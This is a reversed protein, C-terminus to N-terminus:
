NARLVHTHKAKETDYGAHKERGGIPFGDKSLLPKSEGGCLNSLQCCEFSAWRLLGLLDIGAEPDAISGECPPLPLRLTANALSAFPLNLPPITGKVGSTVIQMDPEICESHVEKAEQLCEVGKEGCPPHAAQWTRQGPGPESM